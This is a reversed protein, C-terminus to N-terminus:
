VFTKGSGAIRETTFTKLCQRIPLWPFIRLVWSAPQTLFSIDWPHKTKWVLAYCGESFRQSLYVCVISKDRSTWTVMSPRIAFGNEDGGFSFASHLTILSLFM